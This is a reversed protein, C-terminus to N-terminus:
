LFFSFCFVFVFFFSFFFLSSQQTSTLRHLAQCVQHGEDQLCCPVAAPQYVLAHWPGPAGLRIARPLLATRPVGNGAKVACKNKGGPTLAYHVEQVTCYAHNTDLLMQYLPQEISSGSCRSYALGQALHQPSVDPFM